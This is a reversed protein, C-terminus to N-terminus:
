LLTGLLSSSSPFRLSLKRGCVALSGASLTLLELMVYLTFLDGAVFVGNVAAAAAGAPPWFAPHGVAKREAAGVLAVAPVVTASLLLMVASAGDAVLAIGLPPVWGALEVRVTGTELVVAAIAVAVAGSGAAAAFTVAIRGRRPLMASLISGVLPVFFVLPLLTAATM